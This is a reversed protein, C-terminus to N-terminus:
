HLKVYEEHMLTLATNDWAWEGGHDKRHKRLLGQHTRPGYGAPKFKLDKQLEHVAVRARDGYTQTFAGWEMYGARSLARKVGVVDPGRTGIMLNRALPTSPHQSM